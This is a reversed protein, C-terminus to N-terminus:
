PCPFPHDDALGVLGDPGCISCSADRPQSVDSVIGKLVNFRYRDFPSVAHMTPVLVDLGVSVALSAILSNVTIVSPDPVDLNSFYGPFAAREKPTAKEALIREADVVQACSLCYGGPIVIRVEGTASAVRDGASNMEIRFGLDVVPILYQLALANVVARSYHSDTCLFILDAELLTRAVDQRCVTDAIPQVMVEPDVEAGLRAVVDVKRTRGADSRRAGVIRSLNSDTVVQPDIVIIRGVGLHILQQVVVSGTGGAGVVGVTAGRLLGQGHSGWILEQRAHYPDTHAQWGAHGRPLVRLMHRGIVRIEVPVAFEGPFGTTLRASAGGPSVVMAGHPRNPLRTLLFPYLDAEGRADPISFEPHELDGPHSHAVVVSEGRSR